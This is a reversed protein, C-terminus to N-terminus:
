PRPSFKIARDYVIEQMAAGAKTAPELYMRFFFGVATDDELTLVPCSEVRLPVCKPDDGCNRSAKV